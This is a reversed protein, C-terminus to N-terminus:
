SNLQNLQFNLIGFYCLREAFIFRDPRKNAPKNVTESVLQNIFKTLACDAWKTIMSRILERRRRREERRRGITKNVCVTYRTFSHKGVKDRKGRSWWFGVEQFEKSYVVNEFVCLVCLCCLVCRVKM